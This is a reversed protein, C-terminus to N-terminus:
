SIRLTSICCAFGFESSHHVRRIRSTRLCYPANPLPDKSDSLELLEFTKVNRRSVSSSVIRTTAFRERPECYTSSSRERNVPRVGRSSNPCVFNGVIPSCGYTRDSPGCPKKQNQM